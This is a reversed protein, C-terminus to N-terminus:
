RSNARAARVAAERSAYTPREWIDAACAVDRIAAPESGPAVPGVPTRDQTRAAYEGGRTMPATWRLDAAMHAAGTCDFEWFSWVGSAGSTRLSRVEWQPGGGDLTARDLLVPERGGRVVILELPRARVAATRSSDLAAIAAAAGRVSPISAEVFVGDCVGDMLARTMREDQRVPYFRSQGEMSPPSKDEGDAGKTAVLASTRAVCDVDQVLWFAQNPHRVRLVRSRVRDGTRRESAEDLWTVVQEDGHLFTLPTTDQLTMTLVAALAAILM